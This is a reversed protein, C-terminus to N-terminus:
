KKKNLQERRRFRDVTVAWLEENEIQEHKDLLILINRFFQRRAWWNVATWVVLFSIFLLSGDM